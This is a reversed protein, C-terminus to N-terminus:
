RILTVEGKQSRNGNLPCTYNCIYYYVGLAAPRGNHMGDWGEELQYSFFIREGWRNYVALSYQSFAGYFVPKFQDNRGDNNPTFATPMVFNCFLDLCITDNIRITDGVILNLCTDQLTAWYTGPTNVVLQNGISGDSWKTAAGGGTLTLTTGKCIVTDKGLDFSELNTKKPLVTFNHDTQLCQSQYTEVVHYGDGFANVLATDSTNGNFWLYRDAGPNALLTLQEGACKYLTDTQLNQKYNKIVVQFFKSSGSGCSDNYFSHVYYQGTDTVTIQRTTSGTSWLYRDAPPATLTLRITDNVCAAVTDPHPSQLPAQVFDSPNVDGVPYVASGQIYASIVYALIKDKSLLHHVAITDVRIIAYMYDANNPFPVFNAAQNINDLLVTNINAAKSILTISNFRSSEYVPRIFAERLGDRLSLVWLSAPDTMSDIPTPGPPVRPRIVSQSMMHETISIPASSSIVVPINIITDYGDGANLMRIFNGDLYIQNNNSASIIKILNFPNNSFNVVPYLTDWTNVPLIQEIAQDACCGGFSDNDIPIPWLSYLNDTLFINIPNCCSANLVRVRTGSLDRNQVGCGLIFNNGRNLTVQFPINAPHRVTNVKLTIELIVSDCRSIISFAGLGAPWGVSVSVPANLYFDNGPNQKDSPFLLLGEGSASLDMVFQIVIPTDSTVHLYKSSVTEFPQARGAIDNLEAANLRLRLLSNATLTYTRTLGPTPYSFTINANYKGSILVANRETGLTRRLTLWFDKGAYNLRETGLQASAFEVGFLVLLLCLLIRSIFINCRRKTIKTKQIMKRLLACIATFRLKSGTFNKTLNCNRWSFV